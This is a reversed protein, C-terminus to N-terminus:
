VYPRTPRKRATDSSIRPREFIKSANLEAGVNGPQFHVPPIQVRTRRDAVQSRLRLIGRRGRGAKIRGGTKAVAQLDWENANITGCTVSTKEDVPLNAPIKKLVLDRVVVVPQRSLLEVCAADTQGSIDSIILFEAFM